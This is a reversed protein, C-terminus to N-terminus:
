QAAQRETAAPAGVARCVFEYLDNVQLDSVYEGDRIALESFDLPTQVKDELMIMMHIAELSGIGLDANLSTAPTIHDPERGQEALIDTIVDVINKWVGERSNVNM